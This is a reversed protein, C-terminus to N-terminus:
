LKNRGQKPPREDDFQSVLNSLTEQSVSTFPTHIIGDGEVRFLAVIPSGIKDLKWEVLGSKRDLTM